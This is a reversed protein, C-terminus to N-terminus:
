GLAQITWVAAAVVAVASLGLISRVAWVRPATRGPLAAGAPLWEATEYIIGMVTAAADAGVRVVRIPAGHLREEQQQAEYTAINADDYISDLVWGDGGRVQLEFLDTM